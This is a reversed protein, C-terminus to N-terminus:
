FSEPHKGIENAAQEADKIINETKEILFEELTHGEDLLKKFHNSTRGIGTWYHTKGKEDTHAYKANRLTASQSKKRRKPEKEFVSITLEDPALGISELYELAKLRKEELEQLEMHRLEEEEKREAIIATFKTSVEELLDINQQRAFKRLTTISGLHKLIINYEDERTLETM